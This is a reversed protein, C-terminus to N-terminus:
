PFCIGQVINSGNMPQNPQNSKYIAVVVMSLLTFFGLAICAVATRSFIAPVFIIFFNTFMM